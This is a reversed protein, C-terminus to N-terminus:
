TAHFAIQSRIEPIGCRKLYDATVDFLDPPRTSDDVSGTPVWIIMGERARTLLVRYTNLLYRRDIEQRIDGWGKGAFCQYLWNRTAHNYTFDGGWCVGVWDLELGQCEFESAAVELQNSSRVDSPNALFWHVYMDRNGQRFGSSLELGDARLRVANASAILGCRRLGRTHERLWARVTALSRTIVLPFDVLDPMIATAGAADGALVAQVWEALRQARFSRQNVDLHLSPESEIHLGAENGAEFLRHGALSTDGDLAQPPAVVHWHRFRQQLSRGWEALGAEGSNIEQGGGVLAVIVAWEHRDMISLVIEPESHEQGTKRENQTSNWARQAEDFVIVNEPPPQDPKDLAARVFTHVNQVFTSVTREAGGLQKRRRFDRVIAASVIKVLPGNGSLFVAPPRGEGRLSPNHVVNLGALTKGAGPIGTVFCVVKDRRQQARRIIEVLKDSTEALNKQGAHSHTIERVDHGAYLAEAAEIITPVPRYASNDWANPDLPIVTVDHEAEYASLIVSALDAANAHQVPRVPNSDMSPPAPVSPARPVVAIPIIRRGRSQEHFDRLDLAYDETQRDTAPSHGKDATKFELGLIVDAVLLVADMRKQRRPIPYELLLSWDKSESRTAVLARCASTLVAIEVQWAKTQRHKLETFGSDGSAVTLLGVIRQPDDELFAGLTARYFAPM